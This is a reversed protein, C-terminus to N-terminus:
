KMASMLAENFKKQADREKRLIDDVSADPESNERKEANCSLDVDKTQSPGDENTYENTDVIMNTLKKDSDLSTSHHSKTDGVLARDLWAPRSHRKSFDPCGGVLYWASLVSTKSSPKATAALAPAPRHFKKVPSIGFSSGIDGPPAKRKKSLSMDNENDSPGAISSALSSATAASGLAPPPTM